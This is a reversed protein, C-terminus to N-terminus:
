KVSMDEFFLRVLLGFREALVGLGFALTGKELRGWIGDM